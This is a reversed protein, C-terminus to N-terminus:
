KTAGLEVGRFPKKPKIEWWKVDNISSKYDPGPKIELMDMLANARDTIEMADAERTPVEILAKIAPLNSSKHCEPCYKPPAGRLDMNIAYGCDECLWLMRVPKMM